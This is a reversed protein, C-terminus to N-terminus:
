RGKEASIPPASDRGPIVPVQCVGNKKGNRLLAAQHSVLMDDGPLQGLRRRRPGAIQSLGWLM